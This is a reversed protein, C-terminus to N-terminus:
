KNAPIRFWGIPAKAETGIIYKGNEMRLSYTDRTFGDINQQVVEISNDTVKTVICVHGYKSLIFVLVDDVKPKETGYNDYQYVNRKKNYEGDSLSLDYFSKAHGEWVPFKFKYTTYLYRRVFEVCQYKKGLYYGDPAYSKGQSQEYNEGNYYVNVGNYTDVIDGIKQANVVGAFLFTTLLLIYKM